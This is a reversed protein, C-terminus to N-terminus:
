STKQTNKSGDNVKANAGTNKLRSEYYEVMDKKERKASEVLNEIEQRQLLNRRENDRANESTTSRLKEEYRNTLENIQEKSSDRQKSLEQNFQIRMETIRKKYDADRKFNDRRMNEREIDMKQEQYKSLKNVEDAFVKQSLKQKEEFSTKMNEKEIDRLQIGERYVDENKFSRDFYLREMEDLKQNYGTRTEELIQKKDNYFKEEIGSTERQKEAMIRELKENHKLGIDNKFQSAVENSREERRKVLERDNEIENKLNDRVTNLQNIKGNVVEETYSDNKQKVLNKDRSFFDQQNKLASSTSDKLDNMEDHHNMERTMDRINSTEDKRDLQIGSQKKQEALNKNYSSGVEGLRDQFEKRQLKNDKLFQDRLEEQEEVQNKNFNQFKEKNVKAMKQLESDFSDQITKVEKDRNERVGSIKEKMNETKRALIEGHDQKLDQIKKKNEQNLESIKAGYDDIKM